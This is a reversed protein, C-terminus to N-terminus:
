APPYAKLLAEFIKRKVEGWYIKAPVWHEKPFFVGSPDRFFTERKGSRDIDLDAVLEELIDEGQEDDVIGEAGLAKNWESRSIGTARWRDKSMEELRCFGDKGAGPLQALAGRLRVGSREPYWYANGNFSVSVCVVRYADACRNWFRRQLNQAANIDAHVVNAKGDPLLTAFEEGGEWPVLMGPKLATLNSLGDLARVLYDKPAGTEFDDNNLRRCRVGPAGTPADYRSTFGAAGTEVTIGYLEAQMKATNFIERHNWKMLQANERKPRDTQFRYRALDEFLIVRCPDFKQDWGGGKCPVYGRAAQIILDTGAKTRDDKLNNIHRLLNSAFTGRKDRDLRNIAGYERGRLSWSILLKRVSDLYEVAWMSKGGDYGRRGMWDLSQSEDCKPRTRRRWEKINDSVASELESYIQCCLSRWAEQDVQTHTVLQDLMFSNLVSDTVGSLTEQLLELAEKREDESQKVGLRLLDKLQRVDRKLRRLEKTAQDRAELAKKSVDEGPLRLLFSREHKAWLDKEEDARWRLGKEPEEQVLEFVSCSAFTRLGLDVSLIRLGATISDARTSKNVLATRFHIVEDPTKTRGKGDLWEEPAQSDVDVTLKFWVRGVNGEQLQSLERNELHPRDFLVESGGATGMFEQNASTFAYAQKKGDPTVVLNRFQGSPAIDCNFEQECLAGEHKTLLSVSLTCLGNANRIEYNRLNTGGPAEYCAWRPHLRADPSTYRAFPKRLRAAAELGNLLVLKPLYDCLDANAERALWNFLEPDGFKGKLKTQLNAIITKRQRENGAHKWQAVVRECARIARAGVRYPNEDNAEAVRKLEEHRLREYQRLREIYPAFALAKESEQELRTQIKAHEKKAAHNWSEWSLLHAVALRVALRDWPSVGQKKKKGTIRSLIPPSLMPLLSLNKMDTTLETDSGTSERKRRCEDQFSVFAEQWPKKESLLKRWKSPRGSRLLRAEDSELWEESLRQWGGTDKKMKAIWTPPPDLLKDSNGKSSPDMLPSVWKNAAQASGNKPNEGELVCSPVMDEYLTRLAALVEEDSGVVSGNNKKQAARALKLTQRRVSEKSVEIDNGEADATWYSEGRCLLLIREVHAVAKNIEEHTTWLAQRLELGEEKRPLIMKLNITRTAM